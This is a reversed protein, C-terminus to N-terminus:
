KKNFKSFFKYIKYLKKNYISDIKEKYEDITIQNNKIMKEKSKNERKLYELNENNKQIIDIYEVNKRELINIYKVLEYYLNASLVAEENYYDKKIVKNEELKEINKNINNNNCLYIYNKEVINKIENEELELINNIDEQINNEEMNRGSFNAFAIKSIKEELSSDIMGIYKNYSVLLVVKKNSIGELITRGMGILVDYKKIINISDDTEGIYKINYQLDKIYEKLNSVESGTGIIDLSINDITTGYKEIYKKYYEIYANIGIKISDLKDIDIRSIIVFKKLPYQINIISNECKISNKLIIGKEKNLNYGNEYFDRVEESVYIYKEAYKFAVDKVYIPGWKGLALFSNSIDFYGKLSVGHFFLYYPVNLYISALVAEFMPYTPHIHVENIKDNKIIDKIIEVNDIAKERSFFNIIHIKVNLDEFKKRLTGDQAVISINYGKKVLETCLTLIYTECGGTMISHTAILINKNNM